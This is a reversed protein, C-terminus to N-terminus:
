LNESDQAQVAGKELIKVLVSKVTAGDPVALVGDVRQYHKFALRYQDAAAPKNPFTMMVSKGGQLLTLVVQYNGVFDQEGKGGQMLLVHYSLQNPASMGAQMRRIAVGKTGDTPVLSEYFALDDQLKNNEAELTQVQQQLQVQLAREINRQSDSANVTAQLHDRQETVDQLQAQMQAVQERTPGHRFPSFTRGLDYTWMAVAGGLGLVIAIFVARLPWPLHSRITMRPAAVSWRQRWRKRRLSKFVPKTTAM